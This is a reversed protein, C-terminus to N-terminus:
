VCVVFSLCCAPGHVHSGPFSEWARVQWFGCVDVTKVLSLGMKVGIAQAPIDAFDAKHDLELTVSCTCKPQCTSRPM